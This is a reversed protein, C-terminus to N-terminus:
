DRNKPNDTKFNKIKRLLLMEKERTITKQSIDKQLHKEIREGQHKPTKLLLDIKDKIVYRGLKGEGKM